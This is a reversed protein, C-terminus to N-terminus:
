RPHPRPNGHPEGVNGAPETAQTDGGNDGPPPPGAALDVMSGRTATAALSAGLLILQNLLYLYILFGVSGAVLQYAPNDETRAIFWRGITNLVQIGVAVFLAAPILRRPGLRLRPVAALLAAALILNVGFELVPGSSRLVTAGVITTKSRVLWDLLRDIATTMALSLALLLGLGVLMGLDVLRRIIWSGPHQDLRWVARQSSRLAEVWGLGTLVLSVLGIATVAGANAQLSDSRIWPLTQDLYENITAVTSGEARPLAGLITYGVLALAFAAFFAYYSIAAALRSGHVDNLRDKARWVHDLARSRKRAGAVAHDYAAVTRDAIGV